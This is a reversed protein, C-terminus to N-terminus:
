AGGGGRERLDFRAPFREMVRPDHTAVVLAGSTERSMALLLDLVLGANEGDLSATPEDALVLNHPYLMTRAVAARQREGRSLQGPKRGERGSLGVRALRERLGGPNAPLGLLWAAAALNDYLSLGPLLDPEQFVFGVRRARVRAPPRGAAGPWDEGDWRIEGSTPREVGGLLALLTSKGSGSPGTLALQGADKIVLWDVKLATIPSGGPSPYTKVLRSVTIM